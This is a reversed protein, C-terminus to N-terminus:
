PPVVGFHTCERIIANLSLGRLRDGDLLNKIIASAAGGCYDPIEPRSGATMFLVPASSSEKLIELNVLNGQGVPMPTVVIREANQLMTALADQSAESVPTFPPEAICPVNLDAATAYDSDSMSLVGTTVHCGAAILAHLVESGSGGGCIVHVRTGRFGTQRPVYIPVVLPKGTSPHIRVTADLDFYKKLVPPTIVEAPVGTVAVHGASIVIIDDCFHAALNLDHFVGIVTNGNRSLSQLACLIEIQHSIDLHSTPEDLLIIPTDQALTRAILVRQWEGGSLSSIHRGNLHLIGATKMAAHCLERDKATLGSLLRQHAYRGMEVVDEVMYDFTRPSEQPVVSIKEALERSGFAAIEKGDALVTGTVPQLTRSMCRILTSKGSGNPGIIGVFRGKVAKFTVQDLIRSTNVSVDLGCIDFAPHTM